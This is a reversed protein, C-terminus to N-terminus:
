LAKAKQLLEPYDSNEAASLKAVGYQNLLAKVERSKGEQTKEALVARIDEIKILSSNDKAPGSNDGARKRNKSKTQELSKEVTQKEKSGAAEKAIAMIAEAVISYGEAMKVLNNQM